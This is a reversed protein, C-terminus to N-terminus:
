APKKLFINLTEAANPTKRFFILFKLQNKQFIYYIKIQIFFKTQATSKPPESNPTRPQEM